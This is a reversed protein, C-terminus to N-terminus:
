TQELVVQPGTGLQRLGHGAYTRPGQRARRRSSISASVRRGEYARVCRRADQRELLPRNKFFLKCPFFHFGEGTRIRALTALNKKTCYVLFPLFIHWIIVFEGFPQLINWIPWFYALM